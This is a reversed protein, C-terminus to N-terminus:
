EWPEGGLNHSQQLLHHEVSAAREMAERKLRFSAVTRLLENRDVPKVLHDDCGADISKEREGVM